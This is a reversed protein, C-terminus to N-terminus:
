DTRIAKPISHQQIYGKLFKIIKEGGTTKTILSSPFKSYRDIVVLIYLKKEKSDLLPGAFDMQLEENPAALEPLPKSSNFSKSIKIKKGCESGQRCNQCLEIVERYIRPRWIYVAADIM